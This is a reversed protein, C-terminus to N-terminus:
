PEFSTLDQRHSEIFEGVVAVTRDIDTETHQASIFCRNMHRRLMYIGSQLLFEHFAANLRLLEPTSWPAFDRYNRVARTGFYVSWVSGVAQCVVAVQLTSAVDNIGSALRKGLLALREPVDDRQLVSITADAAAISLSHGNFTGSYFVPGCPALQRILTESGGLFSMIHGNAVAKGFAALDPRVGLQAGAGGVGNRFGTMVEDLVLVAGHKLTLERCAALYDKEVSICGSSYLVPEILLAAIEDGADDFLSRLAKADNITVVMVEDTVAELVGASNPVPTPLGVYPAAGLRPATSVSVESHWGQYGGEVKVIKTRGTAARAIRIAQQIADSGGGGFFAVMEVGPILECLREALEGEYRHPVGLLTGANRLAEQVAREVEPHAYGLIACGLAGHYDLYVNGDVDTIWKGIASELVLPYPEYFRSEGTVGM